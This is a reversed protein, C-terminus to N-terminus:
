ILMDRKLEKLIDVKEKNHYRQLFDEWVKKCALMYESYVRGVHNRVQDIAYEFVEPDKSAIQIHSVQM